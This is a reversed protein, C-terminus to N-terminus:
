KFRKRNIIIYIVNGLSIALLIGALVYKEWERVFFLSYPLEILILLAWLLKGFLLNFGLIACFIALFIHAILSDKGIEHRHPCTNDEM